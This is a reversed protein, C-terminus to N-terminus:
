DHEPVATEPPRRATAAVRGWRDHEPEGPDAAAEQAASGGGESQMGAEPAAPETVPMEPSTAVMGASAEHAPESPAGPAEPHKGGMLMAEGAPAQGLAATARLSRVEEGLAELERTFWAHLGAFPGEPHGEWPKMAEDLGAVEGM